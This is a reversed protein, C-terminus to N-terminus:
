GTRFISGRSPFCAPALHFSRDEDLFLKEPDCPAFLELMKGRITRFRWFLLPKECFGPDRMGSPRTRNRGMSAARKREFNRGTTTSRHDSVGIAVAPRQPGCTRARRGLDRQASAESALAPLDASCVESRWDCIRM